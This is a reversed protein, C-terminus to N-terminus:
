KAQILEIHFVKNTHLDIIGYSGYKASDGPSDAQGDGGISLSTSNAKSEALLKSQEKSWVSLISPVLHQTQHAYFTQESICAVRMHNM